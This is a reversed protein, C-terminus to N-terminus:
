DPHRQNSDLLPLWKTGTVFGQNAGPTGHMQAGFARQFARGDHLHVEYRDPTVVVRQILLQLLERKEALELYEFAQDFDRIANVVIEKDLVQVERISCQAEAEALAVELQAQRAEANALLTALTRSAQFTPDLLRLAAGRANASGVTLSYGEGWGYSAGGGM